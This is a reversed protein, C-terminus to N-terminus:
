VKKRRVLGLGALATGMLLLGAPVPVASLTITAEFNAENKGVGPNQAEFDITAALPGNDPFGTLIGTASFLFDAVSTFSQVEFSAGVVSWTQGAALAFSSFGSSAGVLATDVDGSVATVVPDATGISTLTGAALATADVQGIVTLSGQDITAASAAFPAVAAITAAATFAKINNLM